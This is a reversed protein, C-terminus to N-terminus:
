ITIYIFLEQQILVQFTLKLKSNTAPHCQLIDYTIHHVHNSTTCHAGQATQQIHEQRYM